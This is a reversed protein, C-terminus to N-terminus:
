KAAEIETVMFKSDENSAKFRVKDGPKLNELMAKDKAKFVMTMGPMDLNKIAGHKLAINGRELDLKRVEGETMETAANTNPSAESIPQQAQAITMEAMAAKPADAITATNAPANQACAPLMAAGLLTMALVLSKM